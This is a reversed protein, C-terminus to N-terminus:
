KNTNRSAIDATIADVIASAIDENTKTRTTKGEGTRISHYTFTVGRWSSVFWYEMAGLLASPLDMYWGKLWRDLQFWSWPWVIARRLNEAVNAWGTHKLHSTFSRLGVCCHQYRLTTFFAFNFVVLGLYVKWAIDFYTLMVSIDFGWGAIAATVISAAFFLGLYGSFLIALVVPLVIPLAIFKLLNLLANKM